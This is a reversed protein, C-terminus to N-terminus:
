YLLPWLLLIVLFIFRACTLFYILFVMKFYLILSCSGFRWSETFEDKRDGPDLKAFIRGDKHTLENSKNGDFTGCLGRTHGNDNSPVSM